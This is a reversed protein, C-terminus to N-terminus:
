TDGTEEEPLVWPASIVQLMKKKLYCLQISSNVVSVDLVGGFFTLSRNRTYHVPLKLIHLRPTHRFTAGKM